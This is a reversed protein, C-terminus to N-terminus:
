PSPPPDFATRRRSFFAIVRPRSDGPTRVFNVYIIRTANYYIWQEVAQGQTSTRAVKNPRGGLRSKVEEETAGRLKQSAPDSRPADPESQASQALGARERPEIWQGKSSKRWGRLRFAEAVEKSGPDIKDAERLLTIATERDNLLADYQNALNLRGEADTPRLSRQRRAGLWDRLLAQAREPTHLKERCLKALSEVEAQRLKLLDRTAAKLGNELLKAATLPRDPLESEATAALALSQAPDADAQALLAREAADAWLRHDLTRRVDPPALRYADAPNNAYPAEWRELDAPQSLPQAAKAFFAEIRTRLTGLASASRADALLRRFGHHALASPEPEPIGRSRVREALTLWGEAADAPLRRSEIRIAEGELERAREALDPDRFDRARREAWRAWRMRTEADNPTLGAIGQNLRDLDRPLLELGTVDCFWRDGDRGLVGRVRFVSGGRAADKPRLHVPLRFVVSTRKLRLESNGQGPHPQFYVIRDETEIERGVLDPRKVLDAPEVTTVAADFGATALALVGLLLAVRRKM